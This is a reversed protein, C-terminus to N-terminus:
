VGAGKAAADFEADIQANLAELATLQDATVAGSGKISAIINEIPAVLDEAEKVAVPIIEELLSIINGVAGSALNGVLPLLASLLSVIIQAISATM